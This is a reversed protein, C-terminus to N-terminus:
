VNDEENSVTNEGKIIKEMGEFNENQFYIAYWKKETSNWIIDYKIFAKHKLNNRFMARRLGSWTRAVIANPINAVGLPGELYNLM